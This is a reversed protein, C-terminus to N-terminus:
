PKAQVLDRAVKWVDGAGMTVVLDGPRAIMRLQEVIAELPHVHLAQQGRRRLRLVLDNASVAQREQESDRVFYIEPVIVIDAESFSAAFQEMLFRTRSHQHPQFVCIMRQPQYHRRLARLTTDIETPHHGYDDVVTITGGDVRPQGIRQMRRDLGEFSGIASSIKEWAAGLRHATVAAAAANYAMHDGPLPSEWSAVKQGRHHLSVQPRLGHTRLTQPRTDVNVEWDAQPAFGITEVKCNLGACITLRHPMEHNILLSGHEPVLRAFTAFAQIIADLNPYVDLHDEEVNLILAHTPRLNHFSRDFECAEAVLFDSQGVHWGGGIQPCNAGVIVSPDLGCQILIHGLLSTTSSKGHTGAVAIGTRGIMLRGLLQAYKLIMLGRKRAAVVEPHESNIAASIVLLNCDAPVSQASQELVIPFGESRLAQITATDSKDSGSCLAGAHRAMRALGSMGCGGIGVFHLRKGALNIAQAQNDSGAPAAAAPNAPIASTPTSTM